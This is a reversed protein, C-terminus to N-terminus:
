ISELHLLVLRTQPPLLIDLVFQYYDKLAPYKVAADDLLQKIAARTAPTDHDALAISLDLIHDGENCVIDPLTNQGPQCVADLGQRAWTLETKLSPQNCGVNIMAMVIVLPLSNNVRIM